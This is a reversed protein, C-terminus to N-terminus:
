KQKMQERLWAPRNTTIGDVGAKALSHAKEPDDVTWAYLKLGAGKVKQAFAADIPFKYDLDLGDLNAAKAKEILSEASDTGEAAAKKYSALWCSCRRTASASSSL